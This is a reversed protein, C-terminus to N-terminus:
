KIVKGTRKKANKRTNKKASYAPITSRISIKSAPKKCAVLSTAVTTRTELMNAIKEYDKSMQEYQQHSSSLQHLFELNASKETKHNSIDFKIGREMVYVCYGNRGKEICVRQEAPVGISYLNEPVCYKQLVTNLAKNSFTVPFYNKKM